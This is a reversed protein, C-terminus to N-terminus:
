ASAKQAAAERRRFLPSSAEWRTHPLAEQGAIDAQNLFKIAGQYAGNSSPQTRTCEISLTMPM